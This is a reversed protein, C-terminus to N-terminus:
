MYLAQKTTTKLFRKKNKFVFLCQFCTQSLSSKQKKHKRHERSAEKWLFFSTTKTTKKVTWPLTTRQTKKKQKKQTERCTTEGEAVHFSPWPPHLHYGHQSVMTTKAHTFPQPHSLCWHGHLAKFPLAVPLSTTLSSAHCYPPFSHNYPEFYGDLRGLRVWWSM